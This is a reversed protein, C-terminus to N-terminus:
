CMGLNQDNNTVQKGDEDGAGQNVGNHLTDWTPKLNDGMIDDRTPYSRFYDAGKEDRIRKLEALFRENYEEGFYSGELGLDLDDSQNNEYHAHEQNEAQALKSTETTLERDLNAERRAQDAQQQVYRPEKVDYAIVREHNLGLNVALWVELIRPNVPYKLTIDTTCVESIFKTGKLRVFDSPNEQIPSRRWSAVNVVNYKQLCSELMDLHDDGCDHAIKVCYHYEKSFSEALYDSFKKM